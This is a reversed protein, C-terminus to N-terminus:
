TKNKPEKVKKEEALHKGRAAEKRSTRVLLYIFGGWNLGLLLAMWIYTKM